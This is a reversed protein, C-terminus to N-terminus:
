LADLADLDFDDAGITTEDRTQKWVEIIGPDLNKAKAAAIMKDILGTWKAQEIKPFQQGAFASSSLVQRLLSLNMAAIGAKRLAAVYDKGIERFAALGQDRSAALIFDEISKPVSLPGASAQRKENPRVTNAFKNLLATAITDRIYAPGKEHQEILALSPVAAIWLAVPVNGKDDTRKTVPLVAVDFGEPLPENGADWSYSVPLGHAEAIAIATAVATEANPDTQTFYGRALDDLKLKTDEGGAHAEPATTTTTTDNM